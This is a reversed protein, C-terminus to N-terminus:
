QVAVTREEREPALIFVVKNVQLDVIKRVGRRGPTYTSKVLKVGELRNIQSSVNAKSQGIREAIEDLERVGSAILELMRVRTENALASAVEAIYRAGIVYLTGDREYIGEKRPVEAKRSVENVAAM